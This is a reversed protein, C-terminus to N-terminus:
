QKKLKGNLYRPRHIQIHTGNKLADRVYALWEEFTPENETKKAFVEVELKGYFKYKKM